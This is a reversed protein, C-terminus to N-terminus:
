QHLHRHPRCARSAGSAFSYPGFGLNGDSVLRRHRRCRCFPSVDGRLPYQREHLRADAEEVARRYVAAATLKYARHLKRVV